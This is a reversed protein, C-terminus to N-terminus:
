LIFSFSSSNPLIPLMPHRHCDEMAFVWVLSARLLLVCVATHCQGASSRPCLQHQQSQGSRGGHAAGDSHELVLPM